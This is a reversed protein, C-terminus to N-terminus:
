RPKPNITTRSNIVDTEYELWSLYGNGVAIRKLAERRKTQGRKNQERAKETKTM